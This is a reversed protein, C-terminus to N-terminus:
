NNILNNIDFKNWPFDAIDPLAFFTMKEHTKPHFFELEYAFLALQGAGGGYRGDGVLPLRRSSLQVRIQHTRGTGLTIDFLSLGDNEATVSYELRAERVGKRMRKVVFTKNKQKDRFLLDTMTGSKESPVGRAVAFYRKKMRHNQVETSLFAASKANKASVMVGGTERDLRHVPYAQAKQETEAFHANLLSIMSEGEGDQSLLGAPKVCVVICDDEYLIKVTNQM